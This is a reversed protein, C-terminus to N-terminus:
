PATHFPDTWEKVAKAVANMADPFNQLARFVLEPFEPPVPPSATPHRQPSSASTKSPRAKRDHHKFTTERM